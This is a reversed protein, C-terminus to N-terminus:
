LCRWFHHYHEFLCIHQGDETHEYYLHWETSKMYDNFYGTQEHRVVGWDFCPDGRFRPVTFVPAMVAVPALLGMTEVNKEHTPVVHTARSCTQGM